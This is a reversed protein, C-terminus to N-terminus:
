SVLLNIRGCRRHGILWLLFFLLLFLSRRGLGATLLRGLAATAVPSTDHARRAEEAIGRTTAAYARIQGQAATAVIVYDQGKRDIYEEKDM